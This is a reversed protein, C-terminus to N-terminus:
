CRETQSNPFVSRCPLALFKNRENAEEEEENKKEKVENEGRRNTLSEGENNKKLGIEQASYGAM